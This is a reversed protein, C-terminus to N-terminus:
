LRFKERDDCPDTGWDSLLEVFRERSTVTVDPSELFYETIWKAADRGHEVLVARAKAHQPECIDIKEKLAETNSYRDPKKEFHKLPALDTSLELFDRLDTPFNASAPNEMVIQRNEMLFIKNTTQITQMKHGLLAKEEATDMPTKGLRSLAHHFKARDTCVKMNGSECHHSCNWPVYPYGQQCPGILQDTPPMKLPYSNYARFNYYSQFWLVPHRVTVVFKINPFYTVYDQLAYETELEEPCKLGYKIRRGDNTYRKDKIIPYYRNVVKQPRHRDMSCVEGHNIYTEDAKSLYNMLFTTGCKPFDVVAFDLLWSVDGTIQGGRVLSSLPPLPEVSTLNSSADDPEEDYSPNDDDAVDDDDADDEKNTNEKEVDAGGGNAESSGSPPLPPAVGVSFASRRRHVELAMGAAIGVLLLVTASLCSLSRSGRGPKKLENDSGNSRSSIGFEADDDPDDRYGGGSPREDHADNEDDDWSSGRAAGRTLASYEEGGAARSTKSKLM